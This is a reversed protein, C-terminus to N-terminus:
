NRTRSRRQQRRSSPRQTPLVLGVTELLLLLIVLDLVTLAIEKSM